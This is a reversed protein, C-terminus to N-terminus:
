KNKSGLCTNFHHKPLVATPAWYPDTDARLKLLSQVLSNHPNALPCTFLTLTRVFPSM